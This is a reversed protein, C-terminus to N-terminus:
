QIIMLNYYRCLNDCHLISKNYLCIGYFTFATYTPHIGIEIEQSFSIFYFFFNEIVLVYTDICVVNFDHFKFM